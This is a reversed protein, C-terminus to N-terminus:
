MNKYKWINRIYVVFLGLCIVKIPALILRRRLQYWLRNLLILVAILIAGCILGKPLYSLPEIIDQAIIKYLIKNIM